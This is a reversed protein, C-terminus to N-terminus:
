TRGAHQRVIADRMVERPARVGLWRELSLAGQEILMEIGDRARLGASTAARVWPTGGPRYVLDVVTTSSSLADVPVPFPDDGRLGLSTANVVLTADRVADERSEAIRCVVPFRTALSEAREVSRNFLTVRCQPWREAAALAAAAAGGAGFVTMQEAGPARGLALEALWAFAPIDTNDGMLMGSDVWFVNVAGARRAADTLEACRDAVRRKYPITVNGAAGEAVLADLQADLAEPTVDIAEYRLSSGIAALAAAHMRPSLSHSVPHGLLVLRRPGASSEGSM